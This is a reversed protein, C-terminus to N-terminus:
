FHHVTMVTSVAPEIANSHLVGGGVKLEDFVDGVYFQKILASIKVLQFPQHLFLRGQSM